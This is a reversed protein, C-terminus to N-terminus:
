EYALISINSDMHRNKRKGSHWKPDPTLYTEGYLEILHKEVNDPILTYSDFINYQNLSFSTFINKFTTLKGKLDFEENVSLGNDTELDYLFLNERDSSEYFFYIDVDIQDKIFKCSIVQKHDDLIRLCKVTPTYGNNLLLKKIEKENVQDGFVGFDLDLDDKIFGKDRIIGLLTGFEPWVQIQNANFIASIDKFINVANSEFVRTLKKNKIKWLSSQRILRLLGIKSFILRLYNM